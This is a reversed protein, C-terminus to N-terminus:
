TMVNQYIIEVVENFSLEKHLCVQPIIELLDKENWWKSM